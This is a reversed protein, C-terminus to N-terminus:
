LLGRKQEYIWEKLLEGFDIGNKKMVKPFLSNNTSGPITNIELFYVEGEPTVMCDTRSIHRVGLVHHAKLAYEQLERTLEQSIDPDVIEQAMKEDVYKQEFDFFGKSVIEIVNYAKTVGEKQFVPVTFERGQIYEEVLVRESVEFAKQLAADLEEQTDVLSTAVSSGGELPKVVSKREYVVVEGEHVIRGQPVRIGEKSLINKAMQKNLCLAHAEVGSFIYPIQLVECMGAVAGDEGWTGHIVPVVCVYQSHNELFKQLDRPIDFVDVQFHPELAKRVNAASARSIDQEGGIGGTLVAINM